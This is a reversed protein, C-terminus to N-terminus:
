GSTPHLDRLFEAPRMYQSSPRAGDATRLVPHTRKADTIIGAPLEAANYACIFSVPSSAMAGSIRSEYRKWDAVDAEPERPWVVEAVVRVRPAGRAAHHEVYRTYQEFAHEPSQYWDIADAFDIGHADTALEDGLAAFDRPQLVVLLQEGLELGRRIFPLTGVALEEPISYVLAEHRCGHGHTRDAVFDRVIDASLENKTMFGLVPTVAVLEAFDSESHTSTLITRTPRESAAALQWALNFGSEGDLDVDVITVDPALERARLVAEASSTAVGAVTLGEGTLLKSAAALFRTSDDVLLCRLSM